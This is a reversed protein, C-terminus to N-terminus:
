NLYVCLTGDVIGMASTTGVHCSGGQRSELGYSRACGPYGDLYLIEAIRRTRQNNNVM